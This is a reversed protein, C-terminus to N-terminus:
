RRGHAVPLPQPRERQQIEFRMWRGAVRRDIAYRDHDIGGGAADPLVREECPRMGRGLLERREDRPEAGHHPLVADAGGDGDIRITGPCELRLWKCCLM